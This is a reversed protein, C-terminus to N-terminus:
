VLGLKGRGGIVRGRTVLHFWEMKTGMMRRGCSVKLLGGKSERETERETYLGCGGLEVM